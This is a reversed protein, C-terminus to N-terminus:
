VSFERYRERRSVSLRACSERLFTQYLTSFTPPDPSAPAEGCGGTAKDFNKNNIIICKGMKEFDMRYLYTPVRDRTTSVPCM